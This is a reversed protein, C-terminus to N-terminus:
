FEILSKVKHGKLKSEGNFEPLNIFLAIGVIIGRLEEVVEIAASMTGGTALVDDIILIKEGAKISDKHIELTKPASGYELWYTRSVKERPLKGKKRAIVLGTNLEYALASALIFGRADLGVIKDIDKDAYVSVFHNIVSRFYEADELVPTIDRFCVNPEPWDSISVIKEKIAALDIMMKKM